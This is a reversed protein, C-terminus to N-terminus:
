RRRLWQLPDVAELKNRIEFYLTTGELSGIDGVRAIIDGEQIAQDKKVFFESCHGYLTYFDMGHDLIILYGYGDHYDAYRVIGPHVAKVLMSEQPAIQIGNNKIQTNYRPHRVLGYRSVVRSAPIPWSLRGKREDLPTLPFPIDLKNELIEKMLSQLQQAREKKEAITQEHTKVNQDIEYILARSKKEQTELERQKERAKQLLQNTEIRKTELLERASNLQQLSTLYDSIIRDQEEALLMLRKNESLLSGVSDAQMLLEVYNFRGYKYLTLLIREIADKEKELAAERRPIEQKLDEIERLARERQTNYMDIQNLILKKELGLRGLRALVSTERKKERSILTQLSEVEATLRNLRKEYESVSKTQEQAAPCPSATLLLVLALASAPINLLVRLNRAPMM